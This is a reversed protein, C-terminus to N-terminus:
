CSKHRFSPGMQELAPDRAVAYKIPFFSNDQSPRGRRHSSPLPPPRPPPPPAPLDRHQGHDATWFLDAFVILGREASGFCRFESKLVMSSLM